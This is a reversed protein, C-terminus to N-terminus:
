GGAPLYRKRKLCETVQPEWSQIDKEQHTIDRVITKSMMTDGVDSSVWSQICAGSFFSYSFQFRCSKFLLFGLYHFLELFRFIEFSWGYLAQINMCINSSFFLLKDLLEIYQEKNQDMFPSRMSLKPPLSLELLKSICILNIVDCTCKFVSLFCKGFPM